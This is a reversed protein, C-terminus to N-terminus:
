RRLSSRAWYKRFISTKTSMSSCDNIILILPNCQLYQCNPPSMARHIQMKPLIQKWFPHGIYSSYWPAAQAVNGKQDTIWGVDGWSACPSDVYHGTLNDLHSIPSSPWICMHIELDQIYHQNKLNGRPMALCEDFKVTIPSSAQPVSSTTICNGLHHPFLVGVPTKKFNSKYWWTKLVHDLTRGPTNVKSLHLPDMRKWRHVSSDWYHTAGAITGGM